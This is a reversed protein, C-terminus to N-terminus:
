AKAKAKAQPKEAKAQAKEAQAAKAVRPSSLLSSLKQEFAAVKEPGYSESKLHLLRSIGIPETASKPAEYKGEIARETIVKRISEEAAAIIPGAAKSPEGDTGAEAAEGQQKKAQLYEEAAQLSEADAFFRLGNRELDQALNSAQVRLPTGVPDGGGLTRLNQVITAIRADSNSTAIAPIFEQLSKLDLSPTYTTRTGFRLADDFEKEAADM